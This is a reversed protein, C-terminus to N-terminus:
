PNLNQWIEVTVFELIFAVNVLNKQVHIEICQSCKLHFEFTLSCTLKMEKHVMGVMLKICNSHLTKCM